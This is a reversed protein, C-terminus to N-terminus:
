YMQDSSIKMWLATEISYENIKDLILSSLLSLAIMNSELFFTIIAPFLIPLYIVFILVFIYLYTYICMKKYFIPSHIHTFMDYSSFKDSKSNSNLSEHLWKQHTGNKSFISNECMYYCGYAGKYYVCLSFKLISVEIQKM